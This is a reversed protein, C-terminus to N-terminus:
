NKIIKNMQSKGQEGTMLIFYLGNKLNQLNISMKESYTENASLILKGSIDFIDIQIFSLISKTSIILERQVPNPYIEFSMTDSEQVSLLNNGYIAQDGNASNITLSLSGSGNDILNYGFPDNVNNGYFDFYLQEYIANDPDSCNFAGFSLGAPFIFTSNPNNFSIEGDAFGCVFTIFSMEVENFILNIFPLEGNSPPFNNQGNANVNQLYWTNEFLRPDQSYSNFSIAIAFIIFIPKM